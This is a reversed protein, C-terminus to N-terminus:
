RAGATIEVGLIALTQLPLFNKRREPSPIDISFFTATAVKTATRRAAGANASGAM